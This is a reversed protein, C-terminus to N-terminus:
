LGNCTEMNRTVPAAAQDRNKLILHIKQLVTDVDTLIAEVAPAAGAPSWAEFLNRSGIAIRLAATANGGPLKIKVPQGIHCLQAALSIEHPTAGFGIESAINRNLARYIEVISNGDLLDKDGRILFPFITPAVFEEDREADTYENYPSGLPELRCSSHIAKPIAEALGALVAKRYAIPLAYYDRMEEMAAEWRLWQGFNPELALERRLNAWALPLDARDAYDFLGRPTGHAQEFKESLTKPVLLGGSFPPGSFFKSGTFLILYGRSLYEAIRSRSIRMQCADIVIQVAAPWTNAIRALCEDSPARWGLKSAHMAQLLVKRGKGIETVVADFVLRDMEDTSRFIGDCDAFPIEVTQIEEPSGSIHSGKLVFKGRATCSGFHRAGATYTTGSGTQDSGAVISTLPFGLSLGSLLLAHLQADTGSPSFVIEAGSGELGLYRRVSGRMNESHSEFSELFGSVAAQEVLRLQADRARRYARISISSATSSSFCIAEPRPAPKCGYINLGSHGTLALREDGGAHLLHDLPAFLAAYSDAASSGWNSKDASGSINPLANGPAM